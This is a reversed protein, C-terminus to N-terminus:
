CKGLSVTVSCIIKNEKNMGASGERSGINLKYNTGDTLRFEQFTEYGTGNNENTM